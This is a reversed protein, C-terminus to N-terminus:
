VPRRIKQLDMGLQVFASLEESTLPALQPSEDRATEDSSRSCVPLQKSEWTVEKVLVTEKQDVDGLSWEYTQIPWSFFWLRALFDAHFDSSFLCMTVNKVAPEGAVMGEEYARSFVVLVDSLSEKALARDTVYALCCLNGERWLTVSLAADSINLRAVLRRTPFLFTNLQRALQDLRTADKWGSTWAATEIM